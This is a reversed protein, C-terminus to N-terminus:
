AASRRRNIYRWIIVVTAIVVVPIWYYWCIGLLTYCGSKAQDDKPDREGLVSGTKEDTEPSTPTSTDSQDSAGLTDRTNEALPTFPQATAPIAAALNQQPQSAPRAPRAPNLPALAAPPLYDFSLHQQSTNGAPDTVTLTFSYSGYGSPTFVPNPTDTPVFLISPSAAWTYTYGPLASAAGDVSLSPTFTDGLRDFIDGIILPPATDVTANTTATAANGSTDTAVAAFTHVGDALADSLAFTWAGGSISATGVATGDVLITVKDLYTDSATGNLTPQADNTPTPITAITVEPDTADVMFDDTWGASSANGAMDVVQVHAAFNGEPCLTPTSSVTMLTSIDYGKSWNYGTNDQGILSITTGGCRQSNVRSVLQVYVRNLALNDRATGSVTFKGDVVPSVQIDTQPVAHDYYYHVPASWPSSNGAHDIARVRITVGGQESAGPSHPRSLGAVDRCGAWRGDIMVSPCTSGGFTHGDDYQYAIQYTKLGSITDTVASWSNTIPATRHWTRAGPSTISPTGPSAGDIVFRQGPYPAGFYELNGSKDYVVHLVLYHGDPWIGGPLCTKIDGSVTASTGSVNVSTTANNWNGCFLVRSGLSFSSDTKWVAYSTHKLDYNDGLTVSYKLDEISKVYRTGGDLIGGSYTASGTPKGTDTNGFRTAWSRDATDAYFSKACWSSETSQNPSNNPENVHFPTGAWDQRTQTWGTKAGECIYYTGAPQQMGFHFNGNVDSTSSKILSWTDSPDAQYYLRMDWGGLREEGNDWDRDSNRNHFVWGGVSFTNSDDGIAIASAARSAVISSIPQLVFALVAIITVIQVGRVRSKRINLGTIGRM